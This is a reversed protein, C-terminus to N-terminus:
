KPQAYFAAEVAEITAQEFTELQFFEKMKEPHLKFEAVMKDALDHAEVDSFLPERHHLRCVLLSPRLMRYLYDHLHDDMYRQLTIATLEDYLPQVIAM